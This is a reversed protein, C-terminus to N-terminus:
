KCFEVLLFENESLARDFNNIHLVLVDKEEEINTTKEKKPKKDTEESTDEQTEASSAETARDPDDKPDGAQVSFSGLLLLGLLAICLKHTRM